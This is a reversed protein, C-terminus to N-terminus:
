YAAFNQTLYWGHEPNHAVGVGLHTYAPNLLNERHGQSEMWGQHIRAAVEQPTLQGGDDIWGVNEAAASWGGPIQQTYDPNHALDLGQAALHESWTRAVAGLDPDRELPALGAAARAENALALVQEEAAAVPDAPAPVEAPEEPAPPPEVAPEPEPALAPALAPPPPTTRVTTPTTAVPMDVVGGGAMALATAVAALVLFAAGRSVPTGRRRQDM